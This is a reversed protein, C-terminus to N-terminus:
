EFFVTVKEWREKKFVKSLDEVYKTRILNPIHGWPELSEDILCNKTGFKVFGKKRTWEARILSGDLKDFVYVDIERNPQHSITTYSKM